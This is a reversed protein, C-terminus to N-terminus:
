PSRHLLPSELNHSKPPSLGLSGCPYIFYIYRDIWCMTYKQVTQQNIALFACVKQLLKVETLSMIGVLIEDWLFPNFV